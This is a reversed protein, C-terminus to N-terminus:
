RFAKWLVAGRPLRGMWHYFYFGAKLIAMFPWNARELCVCNVGDYGSFYKRLCKGTEVEWLRVSNDGGSLALRGDSSLCVSKVGDTHGEYTRLCRGTEVDWLRLTKDESGSLALHGDM